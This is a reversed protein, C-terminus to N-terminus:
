DELPSSDGNQETNHQNDPFIDDQENVIPQENNVAENNVVPQVEERVENNINNVENTTNMNASQENNIVQNNSTNKNESETNIFVIGVVILLKKNDVKQHFDNSKRVNDEDSTVINNQFVNVNNTMSNQTLPVQSNNQLEVNNIPTPNRLDNGCVICFSADNLNNMGCKNCIM